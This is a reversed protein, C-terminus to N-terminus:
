EGNEKQKQLKLTRAHERARERAKKRHLEFREPSWIQFTKGRGVFAAQASGSTLDIGAHAALDTPLIIRGDGDLPLQHADAFLSTTLDDQEDSFLDLADVSESLQEMRDMGCAELCDHQYSGFVVVGHFNQGALAARFNAPVSVRGKKDVKNVYTSLFLSM